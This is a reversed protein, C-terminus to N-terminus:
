ITGNITLTKKQLDYLNLILYWWIYISKNILGNCVYITFPIQLESLYPYVIKYNDIYGDDFTLVIQKRNPIVGKSIINNLEDISIIEFDSEKLYKIFSKFKKFNIEIGPLLIEREVVRHFTLISCWGVPSKWFPSSQIISQSYNALHNLYNKM